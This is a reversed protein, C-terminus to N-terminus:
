GQAPLECDIAGMPLSGDDAHLEIRVRDGSQLWPSRPEGHQRAEHARREALCAVGGSPEAPSLPGSHVVTGAPLARQRAAQALWRGVHWTMAAAADGRGLRRGQAQVTLDLHVRGRRWADGLEDPTVAVPGYSTAPRGQLLGLGQSRDEELRAPLTWPCALMLLRVGELAEAPSCGAPVDGTAVAVAAGLDLGERVMAASPADTPGLVDGAWPQALPGESKAPPPWGRRELHPACAWADYAQVPRPLPAMCLAPDFAFAHRARGQNLTVYLDQLQPSLFNWDDLVQQLRTAIGVAYHATTLDRSVVVLMGDRSGDKYTALKM